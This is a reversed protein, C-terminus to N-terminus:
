PQRWLYLPRTLAYSFLSNTGIQGPIVFLEHGTWVGPRSAAPLLGAPPSVMARWQRLRPNYRIGYPQGQMGWYIVEEGTWVAQLGRPTTRPGGAPMPEWRDSEPDYATGKSSTESWALLSRDTWVTVVAGTPALTTSPAPGWSNLVPDYRGGNALFGFRAVDIRGTGGWLFMESGTWFAAQGFRASPANLSAMTSWTDTKPQYRAGSSLASSGMPDYTNTRGGFILLERDAWVMSHGARATPAGNIEMPRWTDTAPDYRGGTNLASVQQGSNVMGDGGWVIMEKGTWVAGHNQRASPANLTSIPFWKQSVPNYRAGSRLTTPGPVSSSQSNGGWLLVETGTWLISHGAKSLPSTTMPVWTDTLPRYRAGANSFARLYTYTYLDGGGWVYLESGAWAYAMGPLFEPMGRTSILKWTNAKPDYLGGGNVQIATQPTSGSNWDTGGWILMEKGTWRAIPASRAPIPSLSLTRWSDTSPNYAAGDSLRKAERAQTIQGGWIIVETGTWVAAPYVRFSPANKNTISQWSDTDPNYLAGICSQGAVGWVFLRTGTWVASAFTWAQPYVARAMPKWEDKNPDYRKGALSPHWVLLEQGTWVAAVNTLVSQPANSSSLRRWTDTTPDYAQHSTATAGLLLIETGSWTGSIFPSGPIGRKIPTWAETTPNYQLGDTLTRSGDSGGMVIFRNNAWVSIGHVRQTLALTGFTSWLDSEAMVKGINLFGAQVLNSANAQDSLVLGGSQQLSLAAANPSLQEIGVSGPALSARTVASPALKTATVAGHALKEETISGDPVTGAAMAYGVSTIPVDPVVQQFPTGESGFWVRVQVDANTFVLPSIPQMNTLSTDGLIVEYFGSRVELPTARTPPAGEVSTGDNSWYSRTGDKNVLAFKFYGAGQFPIGGVAISGQFTLEPPVQALPASLWSLALGLLLTPLPIKM